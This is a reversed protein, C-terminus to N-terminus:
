KVLNIWSFNVWILLLFYMNQYPDPISTIEGHELNLICMQVNEMVLYPLYADNVHKIKIVDNEIISFDELLMGVVCDVLM